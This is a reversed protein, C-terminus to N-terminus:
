SDNYQHKSGSLLMGEIGFDPLILQRGFRRIEPNTLRDAQQFSPQQNVPKSELQSELEAVRQRLRQNEQELTDM